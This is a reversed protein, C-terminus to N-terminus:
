SHVNPHAKADCLVRAAIPGPSDRSPKCDDHGDGESSLVVVDAQDGGAPASIAGSASSIM